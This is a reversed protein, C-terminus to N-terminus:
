ARPRLILFNPLETDRVLNPLATTLWMGENRRGRLMFQKLVTTCKYNKRYCILETLDSAQAETSPKYNGTICSERLIKCLRWFCV